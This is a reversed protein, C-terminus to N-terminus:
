SRRARQPLGVPRFPLTGSEPGEDGMLRQQIEDVLDDMRILILVPEALQRPLSQVVNVSGAVIDVCLIQGRLQSWRPGQCAAFLADAIPSLAAVQLHAERVLRQIVGLALADGGTYQERKGHRSGLSPFVTRWHRLADRSIGTLRLLQGQTFRVLPRGLHTVAPTHAGVHAVVLRRIPTPGWKSVQEGGRLRRGAPPDNSM